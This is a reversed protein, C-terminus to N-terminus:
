FRAFFKERVLRAVHPAVEKFSEAGCATVGDSEEKVIDRNMWAMIAGLNKASIEEGTEAAVKELAQNFRSDTVVSEAFAKISAHKETDIPILVKTKTASHKEGKAKFWFRSDRWAPDTPVFVIGEGIGTAGMAKAVPCEAEVALVWDVIKNRFPEPDAFDIEIEFTPYDFINFIRHDPSKLHAIEERTLWRGSVNAAFIVFMKELASVGVGKQISAGCWEGYISVTETTSLSAALSALVEKRGECFFAFGYNDSLVNIVRERSQVQMPASPYFVVSANSGHIKPTGLFKIKPMVANPDRIVENNEDVRVFTARDRVAKVCNKFQGIDPFPLHM